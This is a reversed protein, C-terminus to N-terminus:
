FTTAVGVRAGDESPTMTPTWTSSAGHLLLADFAGALALGGVVGWGLEPGFGCFWGPNRACGVEAGVLMGASMLVSRFLYSTAARAVHGHTAHLIPTALITSSGALLLGVAVPDNGGRQSYALTSAAILGVGLADIAMTVHRYSAEPTPAVEPTARASAPPSPTVQQTGRWCGAFLTIVALAGLIASAPRQM